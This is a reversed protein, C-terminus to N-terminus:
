IFLNWLKSGKIKDYFWWTGVIFTIAPVLMALLIIVEM